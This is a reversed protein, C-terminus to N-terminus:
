GGNDARLEKHRQRLSKFYDTEAIASVQRAKKTEDIKISLEQMQDKLKQQRLYSELAASAILCLSELVQQIGGEFPSIEGDRRRANALEVVGIVLGAGNRLPLALCSHCKYNTQDDVRIYATDEALDSTNIVTGLFAAKATIGHMQSAHAPIPSGTKGGWAIRLSEVRFIAPTLADLESRLFLAGCDATCLNMADLLIRELLQDFDTEYVLAVGIPIVVNMLLHARSQEADM